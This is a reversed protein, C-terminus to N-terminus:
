VRPKRKKHWDEAEKELLFITPEKAMNYAVNDYPHMLAAKRKIDVYHDAREPHTRLYDRLRLYREIKPNGEHFIHLNYTHHYKDPGKWFVRRGPIGNEGEPHYGHKIMQPDHADVKDLNNVVLLIDIIPKAALGPVSTSGIHYANVVIKKYIAELKLVEAMFQKEWASEYPVIKIDPHDNM